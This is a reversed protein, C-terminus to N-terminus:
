AEGLEGDTPMRGGFGWFSLSCFFVLLVAPIGFGFGLSRFESFACCGFLASGRRTDDRVGMGLDEVKTQSARDTLFLFCGFVSFRWSLPFTSLEARTATGSSKL